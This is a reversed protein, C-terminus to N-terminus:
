TSWNQISNCAKLIESNISADFPLMFHTSILPFKGYIPKTRHAIGAYESNKTSAIVVFGSPLKKLKDFHSM